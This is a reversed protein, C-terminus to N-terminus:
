GIGVRNSNSKRYETDIIDKEFYREIRCWGNEQCVTLQYFNGLEDDKGREIIISENLENFTVCPLSVGECRKKIKEYTDLQM